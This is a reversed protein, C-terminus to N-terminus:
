LVLVVVLLVGLVGALGWAWNLQRRLAERDELSASLAKIQTEAAEETRKIAQDATKDIEIKAMVLAEGVIKKAIERSAKIQRDNITGLRNEQDELAAALRGMHLDMVVDNLAVAGIIPDDKGIVLGWRAAVEQVLREIDLEM